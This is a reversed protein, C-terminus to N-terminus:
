GTNPIRKSSIANALSGTLSCPLGPSLSTKRSRNNKGVTGMNAKHGFRLSVQLLRDRDILGFEHMIASLRYESFLQVVFIYFHMIRSQSDLYTLYVPKM